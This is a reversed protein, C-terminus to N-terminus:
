SIICIQFIGTHMLWINKIKQNNGSKLETLSNVKVSITNYGNSLYGYIGLSTIISLVMSAVVLYVKLFVSMKEWMQHLVTVTILKGIELMAGMLVISVGSGVFLLSLGSISFYAAVSAIGLSALLVFIALFVM